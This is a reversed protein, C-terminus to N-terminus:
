SNVQIRLVFNWSTYKRIQVFQPSNHFVYTGPLTPAGRGWRGDLDAGEAGAPDKPSGGRHTIPAGPRLALFFSLSLSFSFSFYPSLSLFLSFTCTCAHWRKCRAPPLSLCFSLYLFLLPHSLYLSLRLYLPFLHPPLCCSLSPCVYLCLCLLTQLFWLPTTRHSPRRRLGSWFRLPVSVQVRSCVPHLSSFM